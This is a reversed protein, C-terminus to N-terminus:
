GRGRPTEQSHEQCLSTGAGRCMPGTKARASAVSDTDKMTQKGPEGLPSLAVPTLVDEMRDEMRPDLM